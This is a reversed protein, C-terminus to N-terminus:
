LLESFQFFLCNAYSIFIFSGHALISIGLHIPIPGPDDDGSVRALAHRTRDAIAARRCHRGNQPQSALNARARRTRGDRAPIPTADISSDVGQDNKNLQRGRDITEM